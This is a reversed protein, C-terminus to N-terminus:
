ARRLFRNIAGLSVPSFGLATVLAPGTAFVGAAEEVTNYSSFVTVLRTIVILDHLSRTVAALKLTGGVRELAMHADLLAGLGGIDMDPVSGLNVVVDRIGEGCLRHMATEVASAARRGKLAGQLDLVVAYGLVRETINM